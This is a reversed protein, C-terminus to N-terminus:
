STFERTVLRYFPTAAEVANYVETRERLDDRGFFLSGYTATIVSLDTGSM